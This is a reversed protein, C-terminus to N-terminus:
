ARRIGRYIGRRVFVPWVVKEVSWSPFRFARGNPAFVQLGDAQPGLVSGWRRGPPRYERLLGGTLHARVNHALLRDARNRASSRLPDTAAVDGVTFINPYSPSQLTATVRVFGDGDLLEDPVWDTNPTARGIAWIIVDARSPPQGTSWTVTGADLESTRADDLIARHGSHLAVGAAELRPRLTRWTRPHHQRLPAKGPYYLDVRIDSFRAAINAAASVASAGGGVVIVSSAHAIRRHHDALDGRVQEQDRLDTTRWFGNTVGSAIVLVDYAEDTIEGASGSVALLRKEPDLDVIRGHVIRVGDLGRYRGYPVAYERAWLEPSTLRMGLEQGSILGPTPSFGTVDVHRALHIGTLTGTDGMGAIVVRPGTM